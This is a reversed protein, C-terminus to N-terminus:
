RAVAPGEIPTNQAFAGRVVRPYVLSLIFRRLYGYIVAKAYLIGPRARLTLSRPDARWGGRARGRALAPRARVRALRARRMDAM